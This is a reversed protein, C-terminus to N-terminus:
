DTAAGIVSDWHPEPSKVSPSEAGTRSPPPGRDLGLKDNERDNEQEQPRSAFPAVPTTAGSPDSFM